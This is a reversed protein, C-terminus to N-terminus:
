HCRRYGQVTKHLVPEHHALRNRSQYIQELQIAIAARKLAKHPFTRKLTTRWLTQEYEPGYLRKWFFLTLEAIVKGESVVIRKRRDKARKSHSTNPPKGHPYALLDLAAKEVQSMKSYEARGASDLAQEIKKREPERWQFHVPTQTLWNQVAFHQGLNECVTNRIAIEITATVHMLAAGVQLTEQHLEIAAEDSGTLARLVSLREPSLLRIIASVEDAEFPM